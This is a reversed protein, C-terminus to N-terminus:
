RPRREERFEDPTRDYEGGRPAIAPLAVNVIPAGESQIVVESAAQIPARGDKSLNVAKEFAGDPRLELGEEAFPGKMDRLAGNKPLNWRVNVPQPGENRVTYRVEGGKLMASEIEVRLWVRGGDDVRSVMTKTSADDPVPQVRGTEIRGWGGEPGWSEASEPEGKLGFEINGEIPDKPGKDNYSSETCIAVCGKDGGAKTGRYKLGGPRWFIPLADTPDDIRVARYYCYLWSNLQGGKETRFVESYWSVRGLWEGPRRQPTISKGSVCGSFAPCLHKGSCAFPDGAAAPGLFAILAAFVLTVVVMPM